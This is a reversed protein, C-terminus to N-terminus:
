EDAHSRITPRHPGVNVALSQGRQVPRDTRYVVTAAVLDKTDYSSHVVLSAGASESM